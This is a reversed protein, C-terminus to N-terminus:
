LFLRVPYLLGFMGPFEFDLIKKKEEIKIEDKFESFDEKKTESKKEERKNIQDTQEQEVRIRLSTAKHLLRTLKAETLDFNNDVIVSRDKAELNIFQIEAKEPLINPAFTFEYEIFKRDTKLAMDERIEAKKDEITEKKIESRSGTLQSKHFVGCGQVWVLLPIVLLIKKFNRM